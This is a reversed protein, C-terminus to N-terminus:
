FSPIKIRLTQALKRWQERAARDTPHFDMTNHFLYRFLQQLTAAENALSSPNHGPRYNREYRNRMAKIGEALLGQAERELEEWEAPGHGRATRDSLDIELTDYIDVAPPLASVSEHIILQKGDALLELKAFEPWVTLVISLDEDPLLPAELNLDNDSRPPQFPRQTTADSHVAEAAWSTPENAYTIRLPSAVTKRVREVYQSLPEVPLVNDWDPDPRGEVAAQLAAFTPVRHLKTAGSVRLWLPRLDQQIILQYRRDARYLDM